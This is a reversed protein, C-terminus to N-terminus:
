KLYKQKARVHEDHTKSFVTTGDDKSLYYWYASAKPELAAQISELGPNSIPGPPLGTHLYTNYRSNLALDKTTMQASTKGTVYTLTADLQLPIGAKLRKEIIGAVVQKDEFTKVEKELLSAIIITQFVTKKQTAIQKQIDETLKQDLNGFIKRTIDELTTGREIFYTDPFVYGEYGAELPKDNLAHFTLRQDKSFYARADGERALGLGALEHAVDQITWGPIITLVLDSSAVEGSTFKKVMGGVHTGSTLIYQGAQLEDHTGTVLTYLRFYTTSHILRESKLNRAIDQVTDGKKIEFVIQQGSDRKSFVLAYMVVFIALGAIAIIFAKRHAQKSQYLLMIFYLLLNQHSLM